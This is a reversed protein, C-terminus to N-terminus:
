VRRLNLNAVSSIQAVIDVEPIQELLEELQKRVQIIGAESSSLIIGFNMRIENDYEM